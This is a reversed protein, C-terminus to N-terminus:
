ASADGEMSLLVDRLANNTNALCAGLRVTVEMPTPLHSLDRFRVMHEITWNQEQLRVIMIDRQEKDMM